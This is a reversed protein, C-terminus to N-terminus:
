ERETDKFTKLGASPGDDPGPKLCLYIAEDQPLAMHRLMKPTLSQVFPDPHVTFGAEVLRDAYDRGYIRVHDHQGFLILRDEPRTVTPDEFTVERDPEFPTQLIAWGGPVMVRFLEAMAKADDVIHELVHNCLVV